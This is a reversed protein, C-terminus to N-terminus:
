GTRHKREAYVKKNYARRADYHRKITQYAQSYRREEMLDRLERMHLQPLIAGWSGGARRILDVYQERAITVAVQVGNGKVM